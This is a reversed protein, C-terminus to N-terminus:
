KPFSIIKEKPKHKQCAKSCFLMVCFWMVAVAAANASSYLFSMQNQKILIMYEATIPKSLSKPYLLLSTLLHGVSYIPPDQALLSLQKSM